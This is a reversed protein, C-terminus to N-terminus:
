LSLNLDLGEGEKENVNDKEEEKEVTKGLVEGEGEGNSPGVESSELEIAIKSRNVADVAAVVAAVAARNHCPDVFDEPQFAPNWVRATAAPAIPNQIQEGAVASTTTILHERLERTSRILAYFKNMKEEEEEDEVIEIKEKKRKRREGEM